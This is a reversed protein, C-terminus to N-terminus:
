ARRLSKKPSDDEHTLRRRLGRNRRAADLLCPWWPGMGEAVRELKELTAGDLEAVLAEPKLTWLQQRDLRQLLLRFRKGNESEAISGRAALLQSAPDTPIPAERASFMETQQEDKPGSQQEDKRGGLVDLVETITSNTLVVFKGPDRAAERAVHMFRQATSQSLGCRDAVFDMFRGHGLLLKARLLYIGARRACEVSRRGALLHEGAAEKIHIALHEIEGAAQHSGLVSPTSTTTYDRQVLVSQASM